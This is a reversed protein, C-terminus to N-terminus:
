KEAGVVGELMAEDLEGGHLVTVDGTTELVVARVQSPDLVNAERLKSLVNDRSVRTRKLAEEDIKGNRMLVVPRNQIAKGVAQSAKRVRALIWQVAFLAAMAALAQLFATWESVRSASGVLSGMAVTMVFDFSTMKSFSRLGVIRVLLVVWLLAISALIAGRALADVTPDAFFIAHEGTVLASRGGASDGVDPGGCTEAAVSKYYLPATAM